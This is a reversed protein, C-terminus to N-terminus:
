RGGSRRTGACMARNFTASVGRAAARSALSAPSADVFSSTIPAQSSSLLRAGRRAAPVGRRAAPVGRWAEPVVRRAQAAVQRPAARRRCRALLGAAQDASVAAGVVTPHQDPSGADETGEARDAVPPGAEAATRDAARFSREAGRFTREAERVTGAGAQFTREVARFRRAAAGPFTGAATRELGRSRGAGTRAPGRVAGAQRQRRAVATGTRTGARRRLSGAATRTGAWGAATTRAAAVPRPGHV